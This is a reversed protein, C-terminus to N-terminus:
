QEFDQFKRTPDNQNQQKSTQWLGTWIPLWGTFIRKMHSFNETSVHDKVATLTRKVERRELIYEGGLWRVLKGPDIGFHIMADLAM